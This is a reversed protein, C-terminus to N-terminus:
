DVRFGVAQVGFGFGWGRVGLGLLGFGGFGWVGLFVKLGSLRFVPRVLPTASAM